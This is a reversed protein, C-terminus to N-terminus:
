RPPGFADVSTVQFQKNVYAVVESGDSKRIHAEYPSGTDSDTEVRLITGGPVKAAAAAKVQSATGGTLATEPKHARGAAGGPPPGGAQGGPAQSQTTSATTSSKTSAAGAIASSGVAIAALAALAAVTKGLKGTM